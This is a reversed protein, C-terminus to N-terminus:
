ATVPTSVQACMCETSSSRENESTEERQSMSINTKASSPPAVRMDPPIGQIVRGAPYRPEERTPAASMAQPKLSFALLIAENARAPKKTKVRQHARRLQTDTM